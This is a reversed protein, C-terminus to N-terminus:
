KGNEVLTYGYAKLWERLEDLEIDVSDIDLGEDDNGNFYTELAEDPDDPLDGLDVPDWYRAIYDRHIKSVLGTETGAWYTSFTNSANILGIWFKM